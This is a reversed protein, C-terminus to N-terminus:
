QEDVQKPYDFFKLKGKAQTIDKWSQIAFEAAVV